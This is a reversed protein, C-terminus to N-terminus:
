LMDYQEVREDAWVLYDRDGNDSLTMFNLLYAM